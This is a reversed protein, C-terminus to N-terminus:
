DEETRTYASFRMYFQSNEDLMFVVSSEPSAEHIEALIARPDDTQGPHWGNEYDHENGPEWKVWGLSELHSPECWTVCKTPDDVYDALADNGMELLCDACYRGDDTEAFFAKWSYSDGQTRVARFCGQCQTWEDSWECEAGARELADFLRGPMTDGNRDNWNGLVVISDNSGYGPEAYGDIVDTVMMGDGYPYGTAFEVLRKVKDYTTLTM